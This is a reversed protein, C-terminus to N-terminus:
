RCDFTVADGDHWRQGSRDGRHDLKRLVEQTVRLHFARIRGLATARPPFGHCTNREM